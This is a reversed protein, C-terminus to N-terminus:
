KIRFLVISTNDQYNRRHTRASELLEAGAKDLRRVNNRIICMIEEDSVLKYLGDSELLVIEDRDLVIPQRCIYCEKLTGMGLYSTLAAGRETEINYQEQSIEKRELQRKLLEYYNHDETLRYMEDKKVLYARSDGVNGVYLKRGVTLVIVITCGSQIAIGDEDTLEFVAENAQEICYKLFDTPNDKWEYERACRLVENVATRSALEGRELGGIGDCLVMVSTNGEISCGTADEQVECTGIVGFEEMMYLSSEYHERTTIGLEGM